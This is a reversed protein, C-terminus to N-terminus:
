ALGMCNPDPHGAPTSAFSAILGTCQCIAAPDMCGHSSVPWFANTSSASFPGSANVNINSNPNGTTYTTEQVRAGQLSTYFIPFTLLLCIQSAHPASTFCQFMAVSSCLFVPVYCCQFMAVSSCLFVLVYCCQFMPVSSCLLVTPFCLQVSKKLM